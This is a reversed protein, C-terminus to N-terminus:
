SNLFVAHPWQVFTVNDNRLNFVHGYTFLNPTVFLYTAPLLLCAKEISDKGRSYFHLLLLYIIYQEIDFEEKLTDVVCDSILVKIM